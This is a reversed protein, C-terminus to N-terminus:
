NRPLEIKKLKAIVEVVVRNDDAFLVKAKMGKFPGCTIVVM